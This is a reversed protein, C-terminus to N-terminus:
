TAFPMLHHQFQGLYWTMLGGLLIMFLAFGLFISAPTIIFFVQVQPMLKSLVGMALYFVLGFVIFPASLEIGLTFANSSTSLILAFSDSLDPIKGPAFHRYSGSLAALLLHHLNAAMLFTVAVLSLFTGIIAGQIGQTPDFNQAFSLGTQLSIINGAIQLASTLLRAVSGILVGILIEGFLLGFLPAFGDAVPPYYHRVAPMLLATCALAITLRIRPSVSIEGFAPFLMLMTGIRAFVLMFLLIDRAEITM